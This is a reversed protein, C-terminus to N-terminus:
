ILPIFGFSLCWVIINENLQIDTIKSSYIKPHSFYEYMLTLLVSKNKATEKLKEALQEYKKRRFLKETIRKKLFERCDEGDSEDLPAEYEEM